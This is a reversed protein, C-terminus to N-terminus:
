LRVNSGFPDERRGGSTAGRPVKLKPLNGQEALEDFRVSAKPYRSRLKASAEPQIARDILDNAEDLSRVAAEGTEHLALYILCRVEHPVGDWSRNTQDCTGDRRLARGRYIPNEDAMEAPREGIRYTKRPPSGYHERETEGDRIEDLLKVCADADVGGDDKFVVCRKGKALEALRKGVANEADRVGYVAFLQAPTMGLARKPTIPEVKEPAGDERFIKAVQRALLRPLGMGELDEFSASRLGEDTTGGALKLKAFFSEIAVAAAGPLNKIAEDYSSLLSTAQEIKQDYTM